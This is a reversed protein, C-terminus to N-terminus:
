ILKRRVIPLSVPSFINHSGLSETTKASGDPELGNRDNNASEVKESNADERTEKGIGVYAIYSISLGSFELGVSLFMGEADFEFGGEASIGTKAAFGVGANIEVIWFDQSVDAKGSLDVSISGELVTKASSERLAYMTGKGIAKVEGSVTLVIEAVVKTGFWGKKASKLINNLVRGVPHMNLLWQLINTSATAKFLMLEISFTGKAEVNGAKEENETNYKFTLSPWEITCKGNTAARFVALTREGFAAARDFVMITKTISSALESDLELKKNNAEISVSVSLGPMSESESTEPINFTRTNNIYDQPVQYSLERGGVKFEIAAEAKLRPYAQVVIESSVDSDCCNARVRYTTPEIAQLWPLVFYNAPNVTSVAGKASFTVAHGTGESVPTAEHIDDLGGEGGAVDFARQIHQSCPVGKWVGRVTIRDSGEDGCVRMEGASSQYDSPLDVGPNEDHSCVATLQVLRCLDSKKGVEGESKKEVAKGKNKKGDKGSKGKGAEAGKGAGSGSEIKGVTVADGAVGIVVKSAGKVIVGGHATMDDVRAAHMHNILVTGCGQQITDPGGAKCEATDLGARAAEKFEILVDASGSKIPGGVHPTPGPEVKPCVHPDDKRAADPM